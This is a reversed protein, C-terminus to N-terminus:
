SRRALRNWDEATGYFINLDLDYGYGPLKGRSTYQHMQVSRFAGTGWSDRWPNEEFGIVNEQNAYQAVWLRHGKKEVASWDYHRTVSASMYVVCRVGSLKYFRDLFDEVWEPGLHMDCEWDLVPVGWGIYDKVVSYFFEAEEQANGKYGNDRAFHYMGFLKGSSRAADAYKKFDPDMYGKGGSAKAIIFDAPLAAVHIGSQWHSIDIGHLNGSSSTYTWTDGNQTYRGTEDVEGGTGEENLFYLKGNIYHWGTVLYGQENFYYQRGGITKWGRAYTGDEYRYMRGAAAQIWHAQSWVGNEDLYYKGVWTDKLKEGSSSCYYWKGNVIIWGTQMWGDEDFYYEQGNIVEWGNRTCSGGAHRYWWRGNDLIWVPKDLAPNWKGESDVYRGNVYTDAALSGDSRFYYSNGNLDVWGTQMIGNGDLYYTCGDLTIWSNRVLKGDKGTLQWKGDKRIWTYTQCIGQSNLFYGDIEENRAMVGNNRFYYWDQDIQKWGRVMNGNSDFYYTNGAVSVFKDKALVGDSQLYRYNTGSILWGSANVKAYESSREEYDAPTTDEETGTVTVARDDYLGMFLDAYEGLDAATDLEWRYLSVSRTGNFIQGELTVETDPLVVSRLRACNEFAGNKILVAKQANRAFFVEKLNPCSIFAGQAIEEVSSSLYVTKLNQMGMCVMNSIKVPTYINGDLEITEPIELSRIDLDRVAMVEVNGGSLVRYVLGEYEFTQYEEPATTEQWDQSADTQEDTWAWVPSALPQLLTSGAIGLVLLNRYKIKM